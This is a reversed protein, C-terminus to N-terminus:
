RLKDTLRNMYDVTQSSIYDAYELEAMMVLVYKKYPSGSYGQLKYTKSSSVIHWRRGDNSGYLLLRVDGRDFAGRVALENITKYANSGLNM